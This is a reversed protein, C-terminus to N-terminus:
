NGIAADYVFLRSEDDEPMFYGRLGGEHTEIWVPNHALDLGDETWLPIPAQHIMAGSALDILDAGGLAFRQEGVGYSATGTCLAQGPAALRCDQYDIYSQPNPVPEVEPDTVTGDEGLKWGYFRRSGWSVGHLMGTSPDHLVGGIHDSVRFVEEAQMTEPDVRYIISASDPRYEAVPVWLYTGDFDTGGPHYIDGEGLELQGILKGNESMRFVHGRGKGPTRDYGDRPAEFRETPEIIEVSTVFFDEGVRAMGQPHFTPFGVQQRLTETWETGRGLSKVAEVLAEDAIAPGAILTIFCTALVRKRM